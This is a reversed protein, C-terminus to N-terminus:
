KCDVRDFNKINCISQLGEKKQWSFHQFGQQLRVGPPMCHRVVGSGGVLAARVHINMIAQERLM